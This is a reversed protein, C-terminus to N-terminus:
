IETGRVGFSIEPGNGDSDAFTFSRHFHHGVEFGALGLEACIRALHLWGDENASLWVKNGEELEVRIIAGTPPDLDVTILTGENDEFHHVFEHTKAM